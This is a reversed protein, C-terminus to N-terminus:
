LKLIETQNYISGDSGIQPLNDKLSVTNSCDWREVLVRLMFSVPIGDDYLDCFLM